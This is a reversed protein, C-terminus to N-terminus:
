FAGQLRLATPFIEAVKPQSCYSKIGFRVGIFMYSRARKFNHVIPFLFKVGKSQEFVVDPRAPTSWDVTGCVYM